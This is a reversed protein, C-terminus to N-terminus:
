FEFNLHVSPQPKHPQEPLNFDATNQSSASKGM